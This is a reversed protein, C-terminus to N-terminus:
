EPPRKKKERHTEVKAGRGQVTKITFRTSVKSPIRPNEDQMKGTFNSSVRFGRPYTLEFRAM